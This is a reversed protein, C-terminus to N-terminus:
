ETMQKLMVIAKENNPDIKLVEKLQDVAEKLRGQYFYATALNLRSDVQKPNIIISQAWYEIAKQREGMLFYINGLNNFPGPNNPNLEGAKVYNKIAEPWNKEKANVWGLKEYVLAQNPYKKAIELLSAVTKAPELVKQDFFDPTEAVKKQATYPKATQYFLFYACVALVGFVIYRLVKSIKEKVWFGDNYSDFLGMVIFLYVASIIFRMDASFFNQALVGSSSAILGSAMFKQNGSFRGSIKFANIFFSLLLWAFIGFGVIGTESLYQIYENHADNVIFQGQPWLKKLEESAYKPFYIHFTGPGTGFWPSKSWMNLTDRWILVHAQQRAWVNKTKYVFFGALLIFLSLFILKTRKSKVNLWFFFVLSVSFGIYAARTKTYYLAILGLVLFLFILGKVSKNRSSFFISLAIPLTAVLFVAFFIPNGFTSMSREMQPVMIMYKIGGFHQLIGYLVAIAAGTIWGAIVLRRQKESNIANAAVFYGAFSLLARKFENLAVPKDPSFYYFLSVVSLYIIVPIFIPTKKIKIKGYYLNIFLWIFLIGYLGFELLMLKPRTLKIDLFVPVLLLLASFLGAPFLTLLENKELNAPANNQKKIKLEKNM